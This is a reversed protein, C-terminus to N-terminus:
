LGMLSMRELNKKIGKVSDLTIQYTNSEAYELIEVQLKKSEKLVIWASACFSRM